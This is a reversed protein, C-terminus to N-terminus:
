IVKQDNSETATIVNKKNEESKIKEDVVIDSAKEGIRKSKESLNDLFQNFKEKFANAYDEQKKSIKKRTDSGKEPAFLIGVLVGSVMGVLVGLLIKVSRM